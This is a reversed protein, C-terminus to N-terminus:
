KSPKSPKSTSKIEDKVAMSAEGESLIKGKKKARSRKEKRPSKDSVAMWEWNLDM